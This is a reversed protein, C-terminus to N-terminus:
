AEDELCESLFPLTDNLMVLYRDGVSEYLHAVLSLAAERVKADASRTQLLAEHNLKKWMDDNNIRTVMEFVTEQLRNKEAWSSALTLVQTTPEVLKEFADNQLHGESDFKFNLAVNHLLVELLKIHTHGGAM